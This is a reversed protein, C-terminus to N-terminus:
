SILFLLNNSTHLQLSERRFQDQYILCYNNDFLNCVFMKLIGFWDYGNVTLHLQFYKNICCILYFLKKQLSWLMRIGKGGLDFKGNEKSDVM